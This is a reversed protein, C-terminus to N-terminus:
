ATGSRQLDFITGNEGLLDCCPLSAPRDYIYKWSGPRTMSRTSTQALYPRSTWSKTISLVHVLDLVGGSVWLRKSKVLTSSEPM